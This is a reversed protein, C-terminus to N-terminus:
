KIMIAESLDKFHEDGTVVKAQLERATALIISDALSWGKVKKEREASILGASTATEENLVAVMSRFRIFQGRETFDLNERAYKEALEAIVITPTVAKGAEILERVKEGVKSGSFYEFWAFSDLVFYEEKVRIREKRLVQERM